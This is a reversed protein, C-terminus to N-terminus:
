VYNGTEKNETSKLTLKCLSASQNSMACVLQVEKYIIM